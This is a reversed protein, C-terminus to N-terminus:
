RGAPNDRQDQAVVFGFASGPSNKYEHLQCASQSVHIIVRGQTSNDRSDICCCKLCVGAHLYELRLMSRLKLQELRKVMEELRNTGM